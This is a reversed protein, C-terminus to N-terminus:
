NELFDCIGNENDDVPIETANLPDSNCSLELTDEVGDGDDDLDTNNGIGDGDTDVSETEDLPFADNQDM